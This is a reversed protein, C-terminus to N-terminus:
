GPGILHAFSGCVRGQRLGVPGLDRGAADRADFLRDATGEQTITAYHFEHGRYAGDFPAGLADLATLQRYGLSLRLAAFSTELPLLGLMAHRKGATDILGDGLTMYGGCEGYICAGRRAAEHMGAHFRHAQSLPGAHLEPYGGPLFVATAGPDPGEDNLPSFFTIEAGAARWDMLIHPYSFAFATDRAVAIRQGLPALAAGGPTVAHAGPAAMADAAGYVADLDVGASVTHAARDLFQELGDTEAAQVLGLHREPLALGPDRPVSGFVRIGAEEVARRAMAAHAASGARNLIVGALPVDPCLARFGAAALPASHSQKAIDLVLVVPLNLVRALDAVSGTGDRAGDLVGMAGEILLPAGGLAAARARLADPPMAWADLNFSPAGCAVAHFAPDIYDPGSKAARVAFGDRAFARLLGLTVTTKGAGSSPAALVLGAGTM